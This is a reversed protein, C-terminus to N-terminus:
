RDNLGGVIPVHMQALIGYEIALYDIGAEMCSQCCPFYVGREDGAISALQPTSPEFCGVTDSPEGCQACPQGMLKKIGARIEGTIKPKNEKASMITCEQTGALISLKPHSIRVLKKVLAGLSAQNRASVLYGITALILDVEGCAVTEAISGKM